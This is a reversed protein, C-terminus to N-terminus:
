KRPRTPPKPPAPPPPAAPATTEIETLAEQLLVHRLWPIIHLPLEKVGKILETGFLNGTCVLLDKDTARGEEKRIEILRTSSEFAFNDERSVIIRLPVQGIKTIADDARLGRYNMGPSLLVLGALEDNVVAYRLALNAGAGAGIIALRQRNLEPQEALWDVAANVDLMMTPYDRATFNNIDVLQPGMRTVRRNSGGHGRLDIALVAFGNRQLLPAFASWEDRNQGFGHLLLVAPANTTSAPYFAGAIGVDDATMLRMNRYNQAWGTPALSLLLLLFIWRKM